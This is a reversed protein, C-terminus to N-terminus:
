QKNKFGAGGERLAPNKKVGFFVDAISRVVRTWGRWVAFSLGAEASWIMVCPLLALGDVPLNLLFFNVLLASPPVPTRRNM